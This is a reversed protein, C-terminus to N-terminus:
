QNQVGDQEQQSDAKENLSLNSKKWKYQLRYWVDKKTNEDTMAYSFSLLNDARKHRHVYPM